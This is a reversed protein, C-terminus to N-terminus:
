TDKINKTNKTNKELALIIALASFFISMCIEATDITIDGHYCNLVTVVMGVIPMAEIISYKNM